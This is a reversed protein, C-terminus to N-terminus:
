KYKGAIKGTLLLIVLQQSVAGKEGCCDPWRLRAARWTERPPPSPCNWGQAQAALEVRAPALGAASGAPKIKEWCLDTNARGSPSAQVPIPTWSTVQGRAEQSRNIGSCFLPDSALLGQTPSITPPNWESVRLQISQTPQPARQTQRLAFETKRPSLLLASISRPKCNAQKQNWCRM